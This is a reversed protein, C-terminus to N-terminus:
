LFWIDESRARLHVGIRCACRDSDVGCSSDVSGPQSRTGEPSHCCGGLVPAGQGHHLTEGGGRGVRVSTGGGRGAGRCARHPSSPGMGWLVSCSPGGPHARLERPGQAAPRGHLPLDGPAPDRGVPAWRPTPQRPFPRRQFRALVEAACLAGSVLVVRPHPPPRYPLAPSPPSRKVGQPRLDLASAPRPRHTFPAGQSVSPTKESDERDEGASPTPARRPGEGTHTSRPVPRWGRWRLM